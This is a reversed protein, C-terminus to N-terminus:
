PWLNDVEHEQQNPLQTGIAKMSVKRRTRVHDM